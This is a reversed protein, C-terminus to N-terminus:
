IRIVWGMYGFPGRKGHSVADFGLIEHNAACLRALQAPNNHVEPMYCGTMKQLEVTTLASVHALPVRDAAEGRLAAMFRERSTM